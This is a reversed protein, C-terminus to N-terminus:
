QLCLPTPCAVSLALRARKLVALAVWALDLVSGVQSGRTKFRQLLTTALVAWALDSIALVASPVLVLGLLPAVSVVLGLKDLALSLVLHVM